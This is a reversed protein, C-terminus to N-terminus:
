AVENLCISPFSAQQIFLYLNLKTKLILNKIYSKPCECWHSPLICDEPIILRTARTPVSKESSRTTEMTLTVLIPSSPVVNATVLLRLVFKMPLHLNREQLTSHSVNATFLHSGPYLNQRNFWRGELVRGAVSLVTIVGLRWSRQTFDTYFCMLGIVEERSM